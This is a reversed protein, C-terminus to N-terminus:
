QDLTDHGGDPHLGEATLESIRGSFDTKLRRAGAALVLTQRSLTPDITIRIASINFRKKLSSINGRKHGSFNAIDAQSLIFNADGDWPAAGARPVPGGEEAGASFLLASAMDLFLSEEVLSRFAPHFPGAVIAGPEELERTTQLGLRIVPIGAASLKKLGQKCIDVAEALPLPVYEGKRFSEALPTDRLVVTPHIRVMDCRLAIAKEVTEYFGGATDGPLGVMLHIGTQFGRKRLLTVAGVADAATHGRGVRRLVGDDFSQVGVEVTTVGHTELLDLCAADIEDPRTSIRISDIAGGELFPSAMELLRHQEPRPMGTFTGGYFAIQVPGTKRRRRDLFSRVTGTFSAETVSDGHNGATLRENCFLCRHPCGRNMLFIPIIMAPETGRCPNM